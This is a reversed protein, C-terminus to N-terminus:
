RIVQVLTNAKIHIQWTTIGEVFFTRSGNEDETFNWTQVSQPIGDIVLVITEHSGTHSLPISYIKPLAM